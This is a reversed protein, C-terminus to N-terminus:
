PKITPITLYIQLYRRQLAKSRAPRRSRRWRGISAALSSTVRKSSCASTSAPARSSGSWQRALCRTPPSSSRRRPTPHRFAQIQHTDLASKVDNLNNYPKPRQTPSIQSIIYALSTTGIQDGYLYTKLAAPSHNKVLPGNKLVVLAQRDAYYSSSFTVEQARKLRTPSRTSTSTSSRRGPPM